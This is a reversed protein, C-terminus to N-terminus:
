LNPVIQKKRSVVGEMLVVHDDLKKAFKEEFYECDGYVYVQSNSTLIDTVLLVYLKLDSAEIKKSMMTKIEVDFKKTFDVIDVTNVQAICTKGIMCDFEKADLNLLEMASFKDLNTGAKLLEMGYSDLDIGSIAALVEAVERDRPTCTPSKFLLTDTIIASVMMVATVVDIEINAELFMGYIVTCTCGVPKLTMFLPENTQFNAVRHHDVVGIIKASEIGDASQGFENHDVMIVNCGAVNEIERPAEIKLYDLVFQTEDTIKGLRCAVPALGHNIKKTLHTMVLAAMISDTDPNKHGFVLVEM